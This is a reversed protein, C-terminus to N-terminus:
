NNEETLSEVNVSLDVTRLDLQENLKEAKSVAAMGYILGGAISVKLVLGSLITAPDLVAQVAILTFYFILGTLLAPYPKKIAWVGLCIYVGGVIFQVIGGPTNQQSIFYIGLLMNIGGLFFLILKGIGVSAHEENVDSKKIKRGVVFRRQEAETGRQLFGCHPCYIIDAALPSSKCLYCVKLDKIRVQTTGYKRADGKPAAM